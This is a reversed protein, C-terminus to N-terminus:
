ATLETHLTDADPADPGRRSTLLLHRAGHHTILHHAVLRGLTGTGGTILITGDPDLPRDDLDPAARTLRPALITGNRVAVHLEGSALVDPLAELSRASDDTDILVIRRPNEAQASRLLGAAAAAALDPLEEDATVAAAGHTVALLRTDQLRPETSWAQVVELVRTTLDRVEAASADDGVVDLLLVEPVDGAEAVARVDEATAVPVADLAVDQRKVSTPGWAVRFLQERSADGGGRALEGSVPRSVLSDVSAVPAGTADALRVTVSDSGEFSLRVRLTTAGTAYLRVDNWAFPLMLPQESAGGEHERFVGAHLCADLLAPHLGYGEPRGAEEPLTVEAYVEPGLTWAARLGRFAPGYGYGTKELQGYAHQAAEPVPTAGPPPWQTLDFDPAPAEQSLRASTHRTFPTGPAADQPRSHVQATRQGTADPESLTVRIQVSGQAPILLPAEIILESLLSTGTEDGARILLDTLAAGPVLTTGGAAHDALWPHTT